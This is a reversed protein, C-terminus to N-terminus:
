MMQLPRQFLALNQNQKFIPDSFLCTQNKSQFTGSLCISITTPSHPVVQVMGDVGLEGGVPLELPFSLNLMIM